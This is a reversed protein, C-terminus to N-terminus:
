KSKMFAGIIALILGTIGLVLFSIAIPTVGFLQWIDLFYTSGNTYTATIAAGSLIAFCIFGVSIMAVGLIFKKM